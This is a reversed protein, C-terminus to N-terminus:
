QQLSPLYERSWRSWFYNALAQVQRWQKSYLDKDTFEGPPPLVGSKQTLLMSAFLIFPQQPDVSVPLLPRANIIGTVEAILTCLVEHTLCSKQLLFMSDLFKRAIGIMHEWSGRMHSVHPPNFTWSCGQEGLYNQVEKDMGQERCAGTFNTRCDSQLQKAPGRLSFIRRLANICSFADMSEIVEIHVARLNLCSFMIAWRKNEAQGGRTRRTTISWPGFVDLSVYTFPPCAKLRETPLDVM